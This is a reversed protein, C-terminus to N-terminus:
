AIPLPNCHVWLGHIDSETYGLINLNPVIRASNPLADRLLGNEPGRTGIGPGNVDSGGVAGRAIHQSM